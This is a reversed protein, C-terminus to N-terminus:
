SARRTHLFTSTESLAFICRDIEDKTTYVGFSMRLSAPVQLHDHLPQACHHGSRLCIGYRDSLTRAVVHSSENRIYFSLVGARRTDKGPGIITINPIVRLQGFAYEALESEHKSIEEMGLEQLFKVAASLGLVAEIPPTGAEFRWPISRWESANAHVSEVTGGGRLAPQLQLLREAKGFLVGIGTPGYMKHGSFALFDCDLAQVDVPIRGIAQAADVVLIAGAQHVASALKKIDTMVGTVNGVLSIAVLSVANKHVVQLMSDIDPSGDARPCVGLHKGTQWPLLNSHHESWSFCTAGQRPYQGAVLNLGETTNRVFLIEHAQAGIFRAITRRSSEFAATTEDGPGYVSRHVNTSHHQMAISVADIVAKPKLTTAASDLYIWPKGNPHQRELFPFEMRVSAPLSM